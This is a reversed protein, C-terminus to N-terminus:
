IPMYVSYKRLKLFCINQTKYLQIVKCVNVAIINFKVLRKLYKSKVEISRKVNYQKYFGIRFSTGLELMTM